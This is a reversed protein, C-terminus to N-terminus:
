FVILGWQPADCKWEKQVQYKCSQRLACNQAALVTWHWQFEESEISCEEWEVIERLNKCHM